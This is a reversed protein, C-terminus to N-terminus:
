LNHYLPKMNEFTCFQQFGMDKLISKVETIRNGLHDPKHSDSGITIIRGGLQLYKKLIERSPTLDKLGYRFCSTNIEIGKGDAIVQNLIKEVIDMIKEDPYNGYTDYRKIMDLHGLVSYSKFKQVVDYIAEYYAKQFEEQSKGEQFEYNWFEKNNVQHNSLIIFDFPYEEYDKQFLPITHTQVGFEIGAKISLKGRYKEQMTRVEEFYAKYDCNLDTKVGYDVHETFAIEDLGLSLAQLIVEEMTCESDDSFYTHVHYDALM